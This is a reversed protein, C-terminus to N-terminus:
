WVQTGGNLGAKYVTSFYRLIRKFRGGYLAVAEFPIGWRRRLTGDRVYVNRLLLYPVRTRYGQCANDCVQLILLGM